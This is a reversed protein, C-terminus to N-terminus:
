KTAQAIPRARDSPTADRDIPHGGHRVASNDLDPKPSHGVAESGLTRNHGHARHHDSAVDYDGPHDDLHDGLHDIPRGTTQGLTGHDNFTAMPKGRGTMANKLRM